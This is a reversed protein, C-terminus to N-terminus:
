YILFALNDEMWLPFLLPLKGFLNMDGFLVDAIINGMENLSYWM